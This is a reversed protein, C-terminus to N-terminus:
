LNLWYTLKAVISRDKITFADSTYNDTYVLFFDSVPAFRWQFRTNINVNDAQSNYQIFTTLFISKTFTLDIRPGILFLNATAYPDPLDIYSYSYSLAIQGFPQYRYNFSGQLSARYGNFFQGISPRLEYSFVKRRDSTYSARISSYTYNSNEPLENSDTRTPDFTDFLHIYENQLTVRFRATNKFQINYFLELRHDSRGFGPRTFMTFQVGPGHETMSGRSPYFFLRAQPSIRFFNRRRVFGSEVEFGEGVYQHEWSISYPRVRYELRAGHAFKENEDETTIAQHYFVKGVWRNDSSAINYDIGAVRNYPSYFGASDTDSTAQKNVFILGVNSRSFVKRQIAAVTFNYSPLNFEDDRETQMNLLGLRWNNDLKGSLRAGYTIPNGITSEDGNEDIVRASGIRRSFFPNITQEGWRSFLDANELFFQRREPFFIEFRDTNIVQRDVDVQSFDPNYTLDLNLGSTIGIKADGGAALDFDEPSGEAYNQNFGSAVYPIVSINTGPRKPAEEWEMEGMFALSMIIQNQPIRVWTSRTGSQTDFRYSNFFWKREGAKFRLTSFPIKLECSWFGEGIHSVGKWKNDWSEDFDGGNRGGNAILAERMVGLPNMGFVFSNTRDQFPDLLFTINDNGGARYDRRLSPVVYDDQASYCKAAIYLFKDDYTMYIETQPNNAVSDTPFYQWFDKAPRGTFWAAEELKGDLTIEGQLSKLYISRDTTSMQGLCVAQVGLISLSILFWKQISM